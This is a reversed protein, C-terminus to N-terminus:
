GEVLNLSLVDRKGFEHCGVRVLLREQLVRGEDVPLGVVVRVFEALLGDFRVAALMGSGYDLVIVVM